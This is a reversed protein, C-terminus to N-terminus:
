SQGGETSHPQAAALGIEENLIRSVIDWAENFGTISDDYEPKMECLADNLRYDIRRKLGAAEGEAKGPVSLAAIADEIVLAMEDAFPKHCEEYLRELAYRLRDAVEGSSPAEAPAECEAKSKWNM